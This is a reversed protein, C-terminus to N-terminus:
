SKKRKSKMLRYLYWGGVFIASTPILIAPGILGVAISMEISRNFVAVSIFFTAFFNALAFTAMNNLFGEVERKSLM